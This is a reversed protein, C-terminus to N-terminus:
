ENPNLSDSARELISDPLSKKAKAGLKKLREASSVLNGRGDTLRSMAQVYESKAADMKMGVQVLNEYFNVFKDYMSGAVKAIELANQRQKENTWMSNITRLTALLTTPTVIVINRDFAHSFLSSDQQLAIAFAPEMPVFMLVFDPSEMSYLDEYKKASLQNVHRKLSELHERAFRAREGEDQCNVLREYASLSVKSDIIMKKGDPLSIIVDPVHRKGEEDRFSQQVSYVMDKELGSKELVRELVLEGWNGQMKSDGKLARTLNEAEQTIKQNQNKLNELQEKLRAHLGVQEKQSDQVQKEFHRIKEGLPDLILKLNNKNQEAFRQSKEDLIKNALNEFKEQMKKEIKELEGKQEDLRNGMEENLTQSRVLEVQLQDKEGELAVLESEKRRLEQRLEEQRQEQWQLKEERLAAQTRRTYFFAVVCGAVFALFGTLLILYETQM